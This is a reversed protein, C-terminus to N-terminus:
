ARAGQAVRRWSPAGCSRSTLPSTCTVRLLNCPDHTRDGQPMARLLQLIWEGRIDGDAGQAPNGGELACVFVNGRTGPGPHEGLSPPPAPPVGTFEASSNGVSPQGLNAFSRSLALPLKTACSACPAKRAVNRASQSEQSL